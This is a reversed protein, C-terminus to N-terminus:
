RHEGGDIDLVHALRCVGHDDREAFGAGRGDVGEEEALSPQRLAAAGVLRDDDLGEGRRM